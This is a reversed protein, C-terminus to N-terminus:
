SHADTGEQLFEVLKPNHRILYYWGKSLLDTRFDASIDSECATKHDIPGWNEVLHEIEHAVLVRRGEKSLSSSLFIEGEDYCVVGWCADKKRGNGPVKLEDHDDPVIFVKFKQGFFSFTLLPRKSAM